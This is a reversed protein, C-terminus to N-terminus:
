ATQQSYGAARSIALLMVSLANDPNLATKRLSVIIITRYFMNCSKISVATYTQSLKNVKCKYFTRRQVFAAEYKRLSNHQRQRFLRHPYHHHHHRRRHHHYALGVTHQMSLPTSAISCTWPMGLGEPQRSQM